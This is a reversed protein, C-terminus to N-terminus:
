GAAGNGEIVQQIVAQRAEAAVVSEMIMAVFQRAAEPPMVMTVVVCQELVVRGDPTFAARAQGPQLPPPQNPTIIRSM